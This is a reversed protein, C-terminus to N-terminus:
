YILENGLLGLLVGEPHLEFRAREFWQVTYVRGDSLMEQTEDSVPYGFLLLSEQETFGPQGDLDIGSSRWTVMAGCVFHDTQAFYICDGGPQRKPFNRWRWGQRTLIDVTLRGVLVDFPRENAPHLELRNRQFWQVQLTKGEISEERQPTIPFGFISLGGNQEWFERMRGSICQNTDPFCRKETEAASPVVAISGTATALVLLILTYTLYRVPM